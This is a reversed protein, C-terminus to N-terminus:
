MKRKSAGKTLQANRNPADILEVVAHAISIVVPTYM